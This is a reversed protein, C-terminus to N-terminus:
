VSNSVLGDAMTYSTFVRTSDNVRKEAIREPDCWSIGGFTGAWLRGERDLALCLPNNTPLGHDTTFVDLTTDQDAIAFRVLGYVTSIWLAGTRDEVIGNNMVENSPLGDAVTLSSWSSGDFRGVGNHTGVWLSGDNAAYISTLSMGPRGDQTTFTRFTSGDFRVLGSNVTLIWITGQPDQYVSRISHSPLGDEEAYTTRTTGSLKLVGGLSGSWIAGDSGRHLFVLTTGMGYVTWDREDYQSVGSNARDV